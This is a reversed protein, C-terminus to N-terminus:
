LSFVPRLVRGGGIWAEAHKCASAARSATLSVPRFILAHPVTSFLMCLSLAARITCSLVSCSLTLQSPPHHQCCPVHSLCSFNVRM